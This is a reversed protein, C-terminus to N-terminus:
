EPKHQFCYGNAISTMHQCRTGKKTMGKCQKTTSTGRPKNLVSQSNSPPKCVKCPTFGKKAAEAISVQHSVNKVTHCNGAHYKQGYSTIYVSQGRSTGSILILVILFLTRM